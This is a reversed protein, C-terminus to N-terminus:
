RDNAPFPNNAIWAALTMAEIALRELREPDSLGAPLFASHAVRGPAQIDPTFSGFAAVLIRPNLAYGILEDSTNPHNGLVTLLCIGAGYSPHSNAALLMVPLAADTERVEYWGDQPGM